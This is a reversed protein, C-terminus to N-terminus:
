STARAAGADAASRRHPLVETGQGTSLLAPTGPWRRTCRPRAAKPAGVLLFDPLRPGSM